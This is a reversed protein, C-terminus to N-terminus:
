RVSQPGQGVIGRQATYAGDVRLPGMLATGPLMHGKKANRALFRQVPLNRCRKDGM